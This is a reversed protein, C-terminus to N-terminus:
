HLLLWVGAEADAALVRKSARRAGGGVGRRRAHVRPRARLARRGPGRLHQRRSVRRPRVPRQLLRRFLHATRVAAGAGFQYRWGGINLEVRGEQAEKHKHMAEVERGLEVLRADVEAVAKTREESVEALWIAREEAVEAVAGELRTRATALLGTVFTNLATRLETELADLMSDIDVM